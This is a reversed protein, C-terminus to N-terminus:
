GRTGNADPRPTARDGDFISGRIDRVAQDLEGIAHWIKSAARHEGLLQLAAQLDLGAAFIRRIMVDNIGEAIRDRDQALRLTVEAPDGAKGAPPDHAPQIRPEDPRTIADDHAAATSAHMASAGM